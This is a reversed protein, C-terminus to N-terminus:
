DNPNQKLLDEAESVADRLRGSQIYLDSLEEAIFTAGPDDKMALRYNEAAKDFYEGRNGFAGAMESYLHGLSYHYYAASKNDAAATGPTAPAADQAVGAVALLLVPALNRLRM